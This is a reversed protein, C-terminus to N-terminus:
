PLKTNLCTLICRKVEAATVSPNSMVETRKLGSDPPLSVAVKNLDYIAQIRMKFRRDCTNMEPMLGIVRSKKEERILGQPMTALTSSQSM